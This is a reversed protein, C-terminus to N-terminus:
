ASRAALSQTRLVKPAIRGMTTFSVYQWTRQPDFVIHIEYPPVKSREAKIFWTMFCKVGSSNMYSVGTVDLVVKKTGAALLQEHLALLQPQLHATSDNADLTGACVLTVAEGDESLKV